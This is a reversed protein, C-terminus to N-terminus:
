VLSYTQSKTYLNVLSIYASEAHWQIMAVKSDEWLNKVQQCMSLLFVWNEIPPEEPTQDELCLKIM